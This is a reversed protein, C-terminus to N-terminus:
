AYIQGVSNSNVTKSHFFDDSDGGCEQRHHRQLSLRLYYCVATIMGLLTRCAVRQCCEFVCLLQAYVARLAIDVKCGVALEDNDVTRPEALLVLGVTEINLLAVQSRQTRLLQLVSLDYRCQVLIEVLRGLVAIALEDDLDLVVIRRLYLSLDDLHDEIRDLAVLQLIAHLIDGEALM